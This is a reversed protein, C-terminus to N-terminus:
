PLCGVATVHEDYGLHHLRRLYRKKNAIDIYKLDARTVHLIEVQESLNTPDIFWHKQLATGCSGDLLCQERGFVYHGTTIMLYNQALSPDAGELRIKPVREVDRRNRHELLQRM